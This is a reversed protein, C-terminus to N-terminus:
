LRKGFVDISGDVFGDFVYGSAFDSHALKEQFCTAMKNIILGEALPSFLVRHNLRFLMGM